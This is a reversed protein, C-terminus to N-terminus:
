KISRPALWYPRFVFVWTHKKLTKNSVEQLWDIHVSFQTKKLWDLKIQYKKSGILISPFSVHTKKVLWTKNSVEQLWDIHVSFERTNKKVLWTKNSVEQLWDIYVSFERTNKKVLWTKNSVEQLGILISPFYENRLSFITMIYWSFTNNVM